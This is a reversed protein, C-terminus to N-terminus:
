ALETIATGPSKGDRKERKIHDPSGSQRPAPAQANKHEQHPRSRLGPSPRRFPRYDYLDLEARKSESSEPDSLVAQLNETNTTAGNDAKFAIAAGEDNVFFAIFSAAAAVNDCNESIALGSLWFTNGLGDPGSPRPLIALEHGPAATDISEQATGLGNAPWIHAIREGQSFDSQEVPTGRDEVGKEASDMAGADVLEEMYDWYEQPSGPTFGM